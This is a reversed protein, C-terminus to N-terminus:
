FAYLLGVDFYGLRQDPEFRGADTDVELDYQNIRYQTRFALREGLPIVWSVGASFGEADGAFTGELDDFEVPEGDEEEEDDEFGETFRLDSDFAIYALTFSVTGAEGLRWSYTAGGYFGEERYYEDQVIDSDRVRFDIDTEGDKYGLFLTWADTLRYGLNLDLDTRSAEGIEDEESINQENLSDAFALSVYADGLSVSGFLTYTNFSVDADLKEEFSLETVGVSLGTVWAVPLGDDSAAAGSAAAGLLVAAM